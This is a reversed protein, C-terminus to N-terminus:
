QSQFEVRPSRVSNEQVNSTWNINSRKRHNIILLLIYIYSYIIYVDSTGERPKYSRKKKSTLWASPIKKGKKRSVLRKIRLM